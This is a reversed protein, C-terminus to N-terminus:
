PNPDYKTAGGGEKEVYCPALHFKDAGVTDLAEIADAWASAAQKRRCNVPLMFITKLSIGAGKAEKEADHADVIRAIYKGNDTRDVWVAYKPKSRIWNFFRM